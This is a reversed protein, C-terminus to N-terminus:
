LKKTVKFARDELIQLKKRSDVIKQPDIEAFFLGLEKESDLIIQGWPDVVLSHGFSKKRANHSGTQNVAIVYCQNDLARAKCLTHWHSQGTEHTFASPVLIIDIAGKEQSIYSFMEPFRIDYCISCAIHWSEYSFSTPEEGSQCWTSESIVEDKCSSNFSFLHIKRYKALVNGKPSLAYHTNYVKKKHFSTKEPLSGCFLTLQYEKAISKLEELFPSEDHISKNLYNSDNPIYSFMEPLILWNVKKEFCCRAAEIVHRMNQERSGGSCMALCAIKLKQKM